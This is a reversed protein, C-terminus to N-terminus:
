ILTNTIKSFRNLKEDIEIIEALIQKDLEQTKKEQINSHVTKLIKSIDESENFNKLQVDETIITSEDIKNVLSQRVSNELVDFLNLGHLIHTSIMRKDLNLLEISERLKNLDYPIELNVTVVLKETSQQKLKKLIQITFEEEPTNHLSINKITSPKDIESLYEKEINSSFPKREETVVKETLIEAETEGIGALLNNPLKNPKDKETQATQIPVYNDLINHESLSRGDQLLFYDSKNPDEGLVRIIEINSESNEGIEPSDKHKYHGPIVFSLEM